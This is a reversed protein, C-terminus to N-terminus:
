DIIGLRMAKAVAAARTRVQLKAHINKFHTNVTRPSLVLDEALDPGSLGKAALALVEIERPTLRAGPERRDNEIPSLEDEPWDAPAFAILHLGPLVRAIGCYVVDVQGGDGGDVPYRGAIYGVELLRAWSRPMIGDPPGLPLDGIAFRRMEELSLRFWLRAPRNVEVYRRSGDVMVMPVHSREFIRKLKPAEDRADLVPETAAGVRCAM